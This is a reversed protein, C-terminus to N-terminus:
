SEGRKRQIPQKLARRVSMGRGLRMYMSEWTLGLEKAQKTQEETLAVGKITWNM